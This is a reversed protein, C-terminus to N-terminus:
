SKFSFWKLTQIKSLKSVWRRIFEPIVYGNKRIVRLPYHVIGFNNPTPPFFGLLLFSIMFVYIILNLDDLQSHFSSRVEMRISKKGNRATVSSFNMNAVTLCVCVLM